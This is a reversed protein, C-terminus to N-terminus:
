SQDCMKCLIHYLAFEGGTSSQSTRPTTMNDVRASTPAAMTTYGSEQSAASVEVESTGTALCTGTEAM